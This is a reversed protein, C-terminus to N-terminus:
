ERENAVVQRRAQNLKPLDRRLLEIIEAGRGPELSHCDLDAMRRLKDGTEWRLRNAVLGSEVRFLVGGLFCVRENTPIHGKIWRTTECDIEMFRAMAQNGQRVHMDYAWCPVQGIMEEDPIDDPEAHRASGQAERWLLVFLPSLIENSKRFGERAIEVVTEPIGAECFYDFVARPDGMRERLTPSQCRHTGIAYWIALARSPLSTKGTARRLLEPIPRFTLNLRDPEFNPHWNSVVVLDDAARCSAAGAMRAVLYSAVAWEGGIGARWAKGKMAATVLSVTEIDAVGIDEYATICARRWFRSPAVTLLTAAAGLALDERGRRIAKQMLSMALWPNINLLVFLPLDNGRQLVQKALQDRYLDLIHTGNM